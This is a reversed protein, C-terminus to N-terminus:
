LKRAIKISREPRLIRPRNLAKEMKHATILLSDKLEIAALTASAVNAAEVPVPDPPGEPFLSALHAEAAAVNKELFAAVERYVRIRAEPASLLAPEASPATSQDESM